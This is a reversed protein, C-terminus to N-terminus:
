IVYIIQTGARDVRVASRWHVLCPFSSKANRYWHIPAFCALGVNPVELDKFRSALVTLVTVEFADAELPVCNPDSWLRVLPDNLVGVCVSM